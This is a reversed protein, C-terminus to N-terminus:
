WIDRAILRATLWKSATGQICTQLDLARQKSADVFKSEYAADVAELGSIPPVSLNFELMEGTLYHGFDNVKRM